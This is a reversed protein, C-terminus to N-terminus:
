YANLQIGLCVLCNVWGFHGRDDGKEASRPHTTRDIRRAAWFIAAVVAAAWLFGRQFAATWRHISLLVIASLLILAIIRRLTGAEAKLLAGATYRVCSTLALLGIVGLIEDGWPLYAQSLIDNIYPWNCPLSRVQAAAAALLLLPLLASFM